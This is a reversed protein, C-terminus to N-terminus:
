PGLEARGARPSSQTRSGLAMQSAGLLQASVSVWPEGSQRRQCDSNVMLLCKLYCLARSLRFAVKLTESIQM